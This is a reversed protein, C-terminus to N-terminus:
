SPSGAEDRVWQLFAEAGADRALSEPYVLYYSFPHRVALAFPQVLSKRKLEAQVFELYGMAIGLGDAAAQLALAPDHYQLGPGASHAPAGAAMLWLNWEEGREHGDIDAHILDHRTVDSPTELGPPGDMLTSCCLPAMHIPVLLDARLGPWPPLGCRIAVDAAGHAVDLMDLSPLVDVDLDPTRRRWHSLRPLLWRSAFYPTTTVTLRHKATKLMLGDLADSVADFSQSLVPLLATGAETLRVGRNHRVFLNVGIRDELGRVQQSVAGHTVSLEDAALSFSLHRAAAEFARLGSLPLGSRKM